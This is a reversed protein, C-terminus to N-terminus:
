SGPRAFSFLGHLWKLVNTRRDIQDKSYHASHRNRFFAYQVQSLSIQNVLSPLTRASHAACFTPKPLTQIARGESALFRTRPRPRNNPLLRTRNLSHDLRKEM